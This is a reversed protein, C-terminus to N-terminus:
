VLVTQGGQDRTIGFVIYNVESDTLNRMEHVVRPGIAVADGANLVSREGDAILEVSGDLIIFIEEMDEHYHRRFASRPPFKAWNVMQVRGQQLDDRKYLVKKLVGPRMPDEHSAASFTLEAGRTIRVKM